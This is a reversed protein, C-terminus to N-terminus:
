IVMRRTDLEIGAFSVVTGEENKSEKISLGVEYCLRTFITTYRELQSNPPLIMLFDDLYHIISARLGQLKFEEELIWNFVEAFLNFFFPVTRLRFPLFFETYYRSQWQFGLLPSDFPSVPIHRFVSEFDRKVLLWGRGM